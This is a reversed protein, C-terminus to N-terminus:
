FLLLVKPYQIRAQVRDDSSSAYYQLSLFKLTTLSYRNKKLNATNRIM